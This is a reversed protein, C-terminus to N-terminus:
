TARPAKAPPIRRTACPVRARIAVLNKVFFDQHSNSADVRIGGRRFIQAGTTFAGVLGTGAPILSSLAILV